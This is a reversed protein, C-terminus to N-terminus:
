GGYPSLVNSVKPKSLWMAGTVIRMVKELRDLKQETTMDSILTLGAHATVLASLTIVFVFVTGTALEVEDGELEVGLRRLDHEAASLELQDDANTWAVVRMVVAGSSAPSLLSAHNFVMGARRFLAPRVEEDADSASDLIAQGLWMMAFVRQEDNPAHRLAQEYLVVAERFQNQVMQSMAYDLLQEYSLPTVQGRLEQEVAEPDHPNFEDSQYLSVRQDDSETQLYGLTASVPAAILSVALVTAVLQTSFSQCKM